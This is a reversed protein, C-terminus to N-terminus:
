SDDIELDALDSVVDEMESDEVDSDEVDSDDERLYEEMSMKVTKVGNWTTGSTDVRIVSMWSDYFIMREMIYKEDADVEVDDAVDRYSNHMHTLVRECAALLRPNSDFFENGRLCITGDCKYGIQGYLIEIKEGKREVDRLRILEDVDLGKVGLLDEFYENMEHMKMTFYIPHLQYMKYLNNCRGMYTAIGFSQGVLYTVFTMMTEIVDMMLKNYVDVLWCIKEYDDRVRIYRSKSVRFIEMICGRGLNLDYLQGFTRSVWKRMGISTIIEYDRTRIAYRFVPITKEVINRFLGNLVDYIEPIDTQRRLYEELFEANLDM